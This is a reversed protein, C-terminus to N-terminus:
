YWYPTKATWESRPYRRHLLQFAQRSHNSTAADKCGYRSARAVALHLAEPSRPDSPHAAAWDRAAGALYSPATQIQDLRAQEARATAEETESLFGPYEADPPRDVPDEYPRAAMTAPAVGRGHVTAGCWWNDRFSELEGIPEARRVMSILYPRLGPFRLLTYAFAFRRAEADPAAAYADLEPALQPWRERVAARAAQELAQEELLTARVWAALALEDAISPALSESKLADIWLQLPLRYNLINLADFDLLPSDDAQAFEVDAAQRPAAKLFERLNRALPLRMKLFQNRATAPMGLPDGYLLDDLEERVSDLRSAALQLRLRHYTAMVYGPSERSLAQAAEILEAASAHGPPVHDLAAVLWPLTRKERWIELTEDLRVAGGRFAVLWQTLDATSREGYGRDLLRDYEEWRATIQDGLPEALAAALEDMLREPDTRLRSFNLLAEASDHLDSLSEDGIVRRLRREAEALSAADFERYGGSLTGKRLYCRAALYTGWKSWPSERDAAIVDFRRAAEDFGLAYFHASAIQYARDARILPHATSPAEDPIDRGGNCNSFVRDQATLWARVEASDSGFREARDTLTLVTSELASDTCNRYGQWDSDSAARMLSGELLQGSLSPGFKIRAQNWSEILAYPTQWAYRLETEVLSIREAQSFPKGSLVRYAWFLYDHRFSPKVIGVEGDVFRAESYGPGDGRDFHPIPSGMACGFQIETIGLYGLVGAAVIIARRALGM